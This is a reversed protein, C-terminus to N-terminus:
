FHLPINNEVVQKCSFANEFDSIIDNIDELGVSCRLLSETIGIKNQDELSLDSHTMSSPHQILTDVSGLSVALRVIKFSNLIKFAKTKGGIIEFSILSGSNSYESKFILNQIEDNDGGPYYVNKVYSSKKLYNYLLKTNNTQANMRLKLTYLSRQVLWCSDPDLVTGMITRLVKVQNIYKAKGSISGAVVDSHGGIFKTMSYINIDAGLELPKLYFPGSFTNDVAIVINKDIEDRALNMENISTLKVLPNCPTEVFIMKINTKNAAIEIIDEKSSGSKFPICEIGYQPLINKLLFETGGYVPENFLICDNPHLFTFMTNSIAAMGSSFVLSLEANDLVALKEELIEMNPNNVRTYILCPDENEKKKDIGYAIKFSREGDEASKFCFTSSKFIPTTLSGESLYPKYGVKIIKTDINM